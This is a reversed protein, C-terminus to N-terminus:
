WADAGFSRAVPFAHRPLGLDCAGALLRRAYGSHVDDALLLIDDFGEPM